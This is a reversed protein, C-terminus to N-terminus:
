PMVLVCNIGNLGSAVEAWNDGQDLSAFLRGDSTGFAAVEGDPVADLCLSDINKDFWEPLGARCRQLSDGALGGTYLASQGGGPGTSASVLLTEGCVAVGRCYSAHLDDSQFEWSDGQDNSVGLGWACAAFLRGPRALVKHVDAHVDITPQWSVGGDRTRLIGGVHVNVFIANADESLSRTDPPGGWPTYWDSREKIADFSAVAEISGDAVRFLRAEATGAICGARTDALCKIQPKDLSAVRSWNGDRAHWAERGDLVAWLTAGEPALVSVNRGTHQVASAKGAGDFEHLGTECGVLIRAM